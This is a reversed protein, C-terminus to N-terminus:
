PRMRPFSVSPPSYPQEIEGQGDQPETPQVATVTKEANVKHFGNTQLFKEVRTIDNEHIFLKPEGDILGFRVDVPPNMSNILDYKEALVPSMSRAQAISGLDEQIHQNVFECRVAAGFQYSKDDQQKDAETEFSQYNDAAPTKSVAPVAQSSTSQDLNPQLSNQKLFEQYLADLAALQKLYFQKGTEQESLELLQQLREKQAQYNKQVDEPSVGPDLDLEDQIKQSLRLTRQKDQM